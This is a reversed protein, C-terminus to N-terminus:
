EAVMGSFEAPVESMLNHGLIEIRECHLFMRETKYLEAMRANYKTDGYRPDGVLSHGSIAAHKRIQHQRGTILQFRCWTFYKSSKLIEFVTECEIRDKSLGAPNKRGEAKDSLPAKWTGSAGPLTGRLIGQYFKLVSRKQFESAAVKAFNENLALLQVGSTEKDLRHVPFFKQVGLQAELTQFLNIPDETNHVALGSPKDVVLLDKDQHLIKVLNM